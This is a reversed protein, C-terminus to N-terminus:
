KLRVHEALRDAIPAIDFSGWGPIELAFITAGLVYDDELLVRDYWKLQDLYQEETFHNKWGVPAVVDVGTETIALPLSKGAPILFQRYVKRYRATFWGEGSAEDFHQQMPTGYEHLGLIGGHARAADIAAYFHPWLPLDPNGVSFNGICAKRGNAALIRVREAELEAFWRMLEPSQIIPENYGEWYDIQPYQLIVSKTREWWERARQVPDGDMPQQSSYARGIIQTSPSLRKVEAAGSFSDLIKVVRPKARDIFPMSRPGGFGTHITLKSQVSVKQSWKWILRYSVHRNCPMGMGRVADSASDAIRAQYPGRSGEPYYPCWGGAMPFNGWYGDVAGKTAFAVENTPSSAPWSVLARQNEILSSDPNQARVYIAHTGFSENGGGPPPLIEGDSEFRASVLKWYWTGAPVVAPIVELGLTSLRPDWDTVGPPGSQPSVQLSISAQHSGGRGDEVTLTTTFSGASAFVHTVTAGTGLAGDGFSWRHTLPDGDPDTSGRGDFAVSLPAVGATPSATARAIPPRNVPAGEGTAVVDDFLTGSTVGLNNGSKLVITAVDGVATFSGRSVVPSTATMPGSWGSPSVWTDNKYVVVVDPASAAVDQGDVPKRAGNIVVVESWQANKVTPESAWFGSLRILRGPGGTSITQYVGGNFGTAALKLKGGSVSPSASGREKWLTWGTLGNTFDGNVILNSPVPPASVSVTVSASHSGGRGDTVTLTVVFSGASSYTHSSSIGTGNTGDGFGWSYGLADGDPDTSRSGSFSVALPAVGALPTADLRAVPPQNVPPPPAAARVVVDDFKTGSSVGLLNGSKLVITAVGSAATFSPSNRVKATQAMVGSWGSPSAWTDNKYLLVVDPAGASVDQGNSPRRSGNIVLVEAWQASAKTPSTEWFGTVDIKTGAGGTSFTQYVGGNFGSASLHLKGGGDVALTLNGRETWLSWGSLGQSFNGNTLLNTPAPPATLVIRVSATLGGEVVVNTEKTEYGTRSVILRYPSPVLNELAFRGAGDSTASTAGAQVAAGSIPRAQSDEIVGEIRGLGPDRALTLNVVSTGGAVVSVGSERAPSFGDLTAEVDYAGARLSLDYGGSSSTVTSSGVPLATVRAGALPANSEDEVRGTVIGFSDGAATTNGRITSFLDWTPHTTTGTFAMGSSYPDQDTAYLYVGQGDAREVKLFYTGGPAVPVGDGPWEAGIMEGGWELFATVPAGVPAGTPGGELITFRLEVNGVNPMAAAFKIFSVDDPAVFTQGLFPAFLNCGSCTGQNQFYIGKSVKGEYTLAFDAVTEAGPTVTISKAEPAYGVKEVKLQYTGTPVNRVVYIGDSLSPGGFEYGDTSVTAFRVPTSAGKRTVRGRITGAPGRYPTLSAPPPKPVDLIAKYQPYPADPLGCRQAGTTYGPPWPTAAQVDQPPCWSPVPKDARSRSARSVFAFPDWSWNQLIFPHVAVIEPWKHWFETFAAVNYQSALKFECPGDTSCAPGRTTKPYGEYSIGLRDGYITETIMVPFGRRPSGQAECESAVADIDLLYSDITKVQNIFPVSDHHNYHPPYSEPYPHTAWVDFAQCAGPNHRIARRWWDPGNQGPTMTRFVGRSDARKVGAHAQVMYDAFDEPTVFDRADGPENWLQLYVLRDVYQPRYQELHQRIGNAVIEAHGPDPSCGANCNQVRLCPILGRDMADVVWRGYDGRVWDFVYGGEGVLHRTWNMGEPIAAGGDKLNHMGYFNRRSRTQAEADFAASILLLSVLASELRFSM